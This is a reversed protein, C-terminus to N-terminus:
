VAYEHSIGLHDLRNAYLELDSQEFCCYVVTQPYQYRSQWSLVSEIAIECASDSPFGYAGTSICPFAITEISEASALRLASEYTKRLVDSEGQRGDTFVPGVAHIVFRARLNFGPTMKANGSPCPALKRSAAVLRPGAAAHIAGDVGGGGLLSQNAANVIADVHLTTIDGAFLQIRTM